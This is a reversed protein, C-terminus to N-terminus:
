DDKKEKTKNYEIIMAANCRIHGAHDLGSEPDLEEGDLIAFAHRLLSAMVVNITDDGWLKKWNSRGYKKEGMAWVKAEEICAKTPLLSMDSKGDNYRTAKPTSM